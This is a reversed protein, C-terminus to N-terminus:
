KHIAYFSMIVDENESNYEYFPGDTEISLFPFEDNLFRWLEWNIRDYFESYENSIEQKHDDLPVHFTCVFNFKVNGSYVLIEYDIDIAVDIKEISLFIRLHDIVNILDDVRDIEDMLDQDKKYESETESNLKENSM